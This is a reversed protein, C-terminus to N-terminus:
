LTKKIFTAPNGGVVSYPETSKTVVSGAAIITGEGVTIGKMLISNFGIWSKKEVLVRGSEVVSWDKYQWGKKWDSVDNKREESKLSHSNTDIITCGWSFMVDDQIEVGEYCFITTNPGIFVRDGIKVKAKDSYITINGLLYCDSGIEVNLVGEKVGLITITLGDLKCGEGTKLNGNQILLQTNDKHTKRRYWKRLLNLM